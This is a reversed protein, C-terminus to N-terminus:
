LFYDFPFYFVKNNDIILAFKKLSNAWGGVKVNYWLKITKIRELFNSNKGTLNEWKSCSSWM